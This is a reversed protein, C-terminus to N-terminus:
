NDSEKKLMEYKPFPLDKRFLISEYIKIQFHYSDAHNSHMDLADHLFLLNWVKVKQKIKKKFRARLLRYDEYIRFGCFNLGMKNPAYHSKSNLSLHLHEQLYSEIKEYYFKAEEKTKVFM